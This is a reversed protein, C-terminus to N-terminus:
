PALRAIEWINNNLTYQFRDHLRNERGQWFEILSPIVTYGGWHSPRALTENKFQEDFDHFMKELFARSPVPQSQPSAWAGIQSGVPRSLFYADSEESSTKKIKGEIRVQRELEPWFFTLAAYQNERMQKGKRSNYNTFFVFGSESIQKLLVVRASPKGERTATSLVMANPELANALIAEQLWQNFQHLPDSSLLEVDLKKLQYEKRLDLYNMSQLLNSEVLICFLYKVILM